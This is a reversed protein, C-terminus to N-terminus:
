VHHPFARYKSTYGAGERRLPSSNWVPQYLLVLLQMSLFKLMGWRVSSSMLIQVASWKQPSDGGFDARVKGQKVHAEDAASADAQNPRECKWQAGWPHPGEPFCITRISLFFQALFEAFCGFCDRLCFRCCKEVTNTELKPKQKLNLINLVVLKQDPPLSQNGM